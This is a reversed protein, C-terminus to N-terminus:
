TKEALNKVKTRHQQARKRERLRCNFCTRFTHDKPLMKGCRICMHYMRREERLRKMGDRANM